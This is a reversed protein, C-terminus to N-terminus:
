GSAQGREIYVGEEEVGMLFWELEAMEVEGLEGAGKGEAKGVGSCWARM